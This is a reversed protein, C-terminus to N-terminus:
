LEELHDIPKDWRSVFEVTLLEECLRVALPEGRREESHQHQDLRGVHNKRHVRDRGYEGHRVLLEDHECRIGERNEPETGHVERQSDDGDQQRRRNAERQLQGSGISVGGQNCVGELIM